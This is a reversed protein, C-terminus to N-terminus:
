KFDFIPKRCTGYNTYEIYYPPFPTTKKYNKSFNNQHM